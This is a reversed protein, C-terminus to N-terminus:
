SFVDVVRERRSENWVRMSESDEEEEEVLRLRVSGGFLRQLRGPSRILPLWLARKVLRGLQPWFFQVVGVVLVMAGFLIFGFAVIQPTPDILMEPDSLPLSLAALLVSLAATQGRGDFSSSAPGM